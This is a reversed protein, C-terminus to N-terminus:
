RARQTASAEVTEVESDKPNQFREVEKILKDEEPVAALPTSCAMCTPGHWSYQKTQIFKVKCTAAKGMLAKFNPAERRMTPNGFFFTAFEKQNPLWILFEPGYMCGSDKGESEEMIKKFEDRESDFYNLVEDAGIRMAKPRWSVPVSDFADGIDILVDKSRVLGYHAMPFKGQKVLDSNSGFLQVRPLYDGGKAMDSFKDEYKNPLQAGPLVIENSM